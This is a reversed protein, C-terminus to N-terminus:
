ILRIKGTLLQQMMGQKLNKAKTLKNTLTTIESDMDSLTKAIQVQEGYTPFSIKFSSLSEKTITKIIGGPASEKEHEFLVWVSIMFFYKDFKELFSEFILLTRDVYSDYQTIAIRGISGQITLIISGKKVFISMEQAERSIKCKTESKLLKNDDVDFVQVFPAGNIDDYWKELGYPQPFSGRRYRAIEKLSKIEWHPKPSLLQQMAGQKILQKKAILKELSEIYGDADSLANAIAIQETQDLPIAVKFDHVDNRNLTPVGSGTAFRELKTKTLLYYIFKPINDKFDTVWLTTNHPWYDEEIFFVKGITGSRGTVVGSAKVQFYQHKNMAGNSYIVQYDGDILNANPLDFGRQLPSIDKLRKVAWGEPISDNETKKFNTEVRGM